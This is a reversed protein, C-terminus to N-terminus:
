ARERLQGHGLAVHNLLAVQNGDDLSGPAGAAAGASGTPSRALTCAATVPASV